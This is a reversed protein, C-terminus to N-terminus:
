GAPAAPGDLIRVAIGDKLRSQGDVVVLDDLELGDLAEVRDADSYGTTIETEKAVGDRVVFVYAREEDNLTARKPVIRANEHTDLVIKVRIFLGPVLEECNKSLDVTVKITGSGPDVVPSIRKIKGEFDKEPIADAGIVVRQGLELHAMDLEPVFVTAILSEFDVIRFIPSGPTVNMGAKVKRLSITGAISATIVTDELRIKALKWEAEAADHQFQINEFEEASLLRENLMRDARKLSAAVKNLNIRAKTEALRVESDVLRALPQDKEVKDGEEVFVEACLGSAKSFVEVRSETDATASSIIYSSISGTAVPAVNVPVSEERKEEPKAAATSGKSAPDGSCRCLALLLAAAIAVRGWAGLGYNNKKFRM